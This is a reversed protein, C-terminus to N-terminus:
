HYQLGGDRGTLVQVPSPPIGCERMFEDFGPADRDAVIRCSWPSCILGWQWDPQRTDLAPFITGYPYQPVKGTSAFVKTLKGSRDPAIKWPCVTAQLPWDYGFDGLRGTLDDGSM